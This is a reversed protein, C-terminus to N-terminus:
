DWLAQFYKGFLVFGRQIRDEVKKIAEDDSVWTHNPGHELTYMTPKGNEDFSSPVSKFDIEGSQYQGKWSDDLHHEFAFIMENLVWDWDEHCFGYEDRPGRFEESVDEIDVMPSGHKSEKLQKLMPVIIKSLTSDMNWTDYKDIKVYDIKPHVFDLFKQIALSVPELATALKERKHEWPTGYIDERCKWFFIADVISYPSIWHYRFNSIYIKM